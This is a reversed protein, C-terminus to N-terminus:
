TPGNTWNAGLLSSTVHPQLLSCLSSSWLNYAEGFVVTILNLLILYTPYTARM